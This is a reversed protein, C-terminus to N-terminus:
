LTRPCQVSDYQNRLYLVHNTYSQVKAQVEPSKLAYGPGGNYASIAQEPPFQDLLSRMIVLSSAVSYNWDTALRRRDFSYDDATRPLIQGPGIEDARGRLNVPGFKGGSEWHIISLAMQPPVGSQCALQVVAQKRESISPPTGTRLPRPAFRISPEVSVRSYRPAAAATAGIGRPVISSTKSGNLIQQRLDNRRRGDGRPGAHRYAYPRLYGRGDVFVRDSYVYPPYAYRPAYAVYPPAVYVYPRPQVVVYGYAPRPVFPAVGAGVVVQANAKPPTILAMAFVLGFLALVTKKLM